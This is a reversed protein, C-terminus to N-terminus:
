RFGARALTEYRLRGPIAGLGVARHEWIARGRKETYDRIAADCLGILEDREADSLAADTL